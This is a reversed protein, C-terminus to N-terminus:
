KANTSNQMQVYHRQKKVVLECNVLLKVLWNLIEISTYSRSKILGRGAWDVCV